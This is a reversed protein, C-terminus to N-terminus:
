SGTNECPLIADEEVDDSTAAFQFPSNNLLIFTFQVEPPNKIKAMGDAVGEFKERMKPNGVALRYRYAHDGLRPNGRRIIHDVDASDCTKLLEQCSISERGFQGRPAIQVSEKRERCAILFRNVSNDM